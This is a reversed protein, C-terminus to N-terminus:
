TSKKTSRSRKPRRKPEGSPSESEPGSAAAVVLARRREEVQASYKRQVHEPELMFADPRRAWADIQDAESIRGM